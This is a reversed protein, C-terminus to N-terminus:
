CWQTGREVRRFDLFRLTYTCGVIDKKGFSNIELQDVVAHNVSVYLM